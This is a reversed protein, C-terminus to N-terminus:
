KGDVYKEILEIEDLIKEIKEIKSESHKKLLATDIQAESLRYSNKLEARALMEDDEKGDKISELIGRVLRSYPLESPDTGNDNTEETM